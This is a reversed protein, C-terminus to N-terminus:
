VIHLPSTSWYSSEFSKNMLKSTVLTANTHYKFIMTDLLMLTVM